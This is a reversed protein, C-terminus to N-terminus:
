GGDYEPFEARLAAAEELKGAAELVLALRGAAQEVAEDEPRLAKRRIALARRLYSEALDLRGLEGELKGLAALPFALHPHEPGYAAEFIRAAELFYGRAEDTEGLSQCVDGLNHLSIARRPADPGLAREWIAASRLLLPKSAQRLEPTRMVNTLNNLVQAVDPHDPGLLRERRALLDQYLGRADEDSGLRSATMAEGQLSSLTDPHDPGLLRERIERSHKFNQQARADQGDDFLSIGLHELVKATREDEIGERELISLARLQLEIAEGYRGRVSQLHGLRDVVMAVEPSGDGLEATLIDLAERLSADAADLEGLNLEVSGLLELSAAVDRHRPGLQRRRLALTELASEKAAPWLGLKDQVKGITDLLRAGVLPQSTLSSRAKRAGQDLLERATITEGRNQGPDSVEFLGVLFDVVEHTQAEAMRARHAERMAAVLGGVLSIGVLAVSALALRHRRAWRRSRYLASPPAATVAHGTLFRELDDALELASQYRAEPRLATAKRTIWDLEGRLARPLARPSLNRARAREILAARDARSIRASPTDLVGTQVQEILDALTGTGRRFPREGALLEYLLIGISYVDSRVDVPSGPELAEPALYAPSGLVRGHRKAEHESEDDLRQGIGFDILKPVPRGDVETLLVNSPKIDRHLIGKQHAHHVARAVTAVLRIREHLDLRRADAGRLLTDGDILEMAFYPDGEPTDGAEYVKAISPHDLRALLRREVEFQQRLEHTRFDSGRVVKLAVMRHLPQRQEARYVVGMGGEGLIDILYYPGIRGVPPLTGARDPPSNAKRGSDQHRLLDGADTKEFTDVPLTHRGSDEDDHM